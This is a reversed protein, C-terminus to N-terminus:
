RGFLGRRIGSVENPDGAGMVPTGGLSPASPDAPEFSPPAPAPDAAAAMASMIRPVVPEAGTTAGVPTAVSVPAPAPTSAPVVVPAPSSAAPAPREPSGTVMPPPTPGEATDLHVQYYPQFRFNVQELRYIRASEVGELNRLREVFEVASVLDDTQQFGPKGDVSRYIVM